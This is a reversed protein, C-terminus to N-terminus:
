ELVFEYCIWCIFLYLVDFTILFKLATLREQLFSQFLIGEMLRMSALLLPISLPFLLLPTMIEHFKLELTVIAVFSGIACFGLSSLFLVPLLNLLQSFFNQDLFITFIPLLLFQLLLSFFLYVIIKSAMLCVRAIPIMLLRELAQNKEMAVARQFFLTHGFFFCVWYSGVFLEQKKELAFAFQLILLSTVCFLFIAIFGFFDRYHLLFDKRAITFFHSIKM